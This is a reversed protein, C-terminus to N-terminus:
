SLIHLNESNEKSMYRIKQFEFLKMKNIIQQFKEPRIYVEEAIGMSDEKKKSKLSEHILKNLELIGYQQM